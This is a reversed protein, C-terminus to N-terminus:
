ELDFKGCNGAVDIVFVDMQDLNVTEPIQFSKVDLLMEFSYFVESCASPRKRLEILRLPLPDSSMTRTINCFSVVNKQNPVAINRFWKHVSLIIASSQEFYIGDRDRQEQYKILFQNANPQHVRTLRPDRPRSPVVAVSASSASEANRVVIRDALNVTRNDVTFMNGAFDFGGGMIGVKTHGLNFIHGIEHCLSGLSTAWCGGITRRDNSFDMYHRVDVPTEDKFRSVVESLESPWTYMCGTGFLALSGGGLAANALLRSEVKLEDNGPIYRTCGIFAVCKVYGNVRGNKVFEAAFHNWLKKEDMGEAQSQSLDSYFTECDDDLRFSKRGLGQERLKEGFMTQVLDTALNIKRYADEVNCDADPSQFRGDHGNCIIYYKKVFFESTNPIYFIRFSNSENCQTVEIDNAGLLLRLLGKFETTRTSM